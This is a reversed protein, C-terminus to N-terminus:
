RGGGTLKGDIFRWEYVFRLVDTDKSISKPFAAYPAGMRVIQLAAENLARHKSPKVLHLGHLSGDSNLAVELTLTGSLRERRIAQPYNLNGIRTVQKRWQDLYRAFRSQKTNVSITRDRPNKDHAQAKFETPDAADASPTMLRAILVRPASSAVTMLNGLYSRNAPGTTTVARQKTAATRDVAARRSRINRGNRRGAHAIAAPNAVPASPRVHKNTNGHGIQNAQAIYDAHDPVKVTRSQVLTVAFTPGDAAAGNNSFTVGLIVIGHLLLVFFLATVLRDKHSVGAIQSADHYPLRKVAPKM